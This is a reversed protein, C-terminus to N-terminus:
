DRITVKKQADFKGLSNNIELFLIGKIMHILTLNLLDVPISM